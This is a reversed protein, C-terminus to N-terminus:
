PYYFLIQKETSILVLIPLCMQTNTDDRTLQICHICTILVNRIYTGDGTDVTYNIGSILVYMAITLYESSVWTRREGDSPVKSQFGGSSRLVCSRTYVCIQYLTRVYPLAPVHAVAAWWSHLQEWGMVRPLSLSPIYGTSSITISIRYQICYFRYLSPCLDFQSIVGSHRYM